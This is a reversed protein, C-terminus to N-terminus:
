PNWPEQTQYIKVKSGKVVAVKGAISFLDKVM